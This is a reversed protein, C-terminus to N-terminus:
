PTRRRSPQAPQRASPQAPAVTSEPLTVGEVKAVIRAKCHHFDTLEAHFVEPGTKQDLVYSVLGYCKKTGSMTDKRCWGHGEWSIEDVYKEAGASETISTATFKQVVPEPEVKVNNYISDETIYWLKITQGVLLEKTPLVTADPLSTITLCALTKEAAPASSAFMFGIAPVFLKAIAKM